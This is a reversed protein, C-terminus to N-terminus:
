ENVPVESEFHVIDDSHQKALCAVAAIMGNLINLDNRKLSNVTLESAFINLGELANAINTSDIVLDVPDIIKKNM